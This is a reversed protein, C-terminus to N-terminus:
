NLGAFRHSGVAIPDPSFPHPSDQEQGHNRRIDGNGKSAQKGNKHQWRGTGTTNGNENRGEGRGVGRNRTGTKRTRKSAEDKGDGNIVRYIPVLHWVLRMLRSPPRSAGHRPHSSIIFRPVAMGNNSAQFVVSVLAEAGHHSPAIPVLSVLRILHHSPVTSVAGDFGCRDSAAGSSSFRIVPSVIILQPFRRMFFIGGGDWNGAGAALGGGHIPCAGVPHRYFRCSFLVLHRSSSIFRASRYFSFRASARPASRFSLGPAVSRPPLRPSPLLSSSILVACLFVLQWRGAIRDM